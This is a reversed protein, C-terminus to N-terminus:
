GALGAVVKKLVGEIELGYTAALLDVPHVAPTGTWHVVQWRCTESDCIVIPAGMEKVFDFLPKGVDMAIQYKEKKYGYTGAIGCCADHSDTVTLGPILDLLEMGPRGLRHTRYQYPVHHGLSLPIPRFDTRLTGEELLKVLFENFDYTGEAVLRTDEDHMGLLEPDDEKLTLTCSTSAGVIPIGQRAYEVLHKV